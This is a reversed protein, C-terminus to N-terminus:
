NSVSHLKENLLGPTIQLSVAVAHLIRIWGPSIHPKARARLM